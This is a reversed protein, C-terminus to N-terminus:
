DFLFGQTKINLDNGSKGKVEPQIGASYVEIDKKMRGKSKTEIEELIEFARKIVNDPMGALKAVHIGYSKSASGEVVKHLFVIDGKWEKVSVQYNKINKYKSLETLEHYHTAFLTKGCGNRGNSIYELISWAISMGDYTSTGRGIEDMIILSRTTSNNLINAGENMEVLFTSEGKALNDTAGIRTFIKDIIGIKGYDAPIFSGIQAMIVILAAQRLYTSKGSMNPGTIILIKNEDNDVLLDNPVFQGENMTVEVVPHRGQQILIEKSEDVVPCSYNKKISSDAFGSLVDLQAVRNANVILKSLYAKLNTQLKLFLEKELEVIRENANLVKSEYDQLDKFTYRESNVLSQKKIYYDPVYKINTKSVEVYYGIVKNYKIKLNNIGTQNREKEVLQEIYSKNTDSLSKLEDLEDSYGEKIVGGNSLDNAPEDKIAKEILIVVENLENIEETIHSTSRINKLATKINQIAILSNKLTIFEGPSIKNLSLRGSIREIDAIGDFEKRLKMLLSFDNKLDKVIVQRKNILSTDLLPMLIWQALLRSGMSTVCNNIISFLTNKRTGDWLNHFLELSRITTEPLWLYDSVRHRKVSVIHHIDRLQTEKVYKLLAGSAGIGYRCDDIGFGKLNTVKFLSTLARYSFDYDFYIDQFYNIFLKEKYQKVTKNFQEDHKFDERVVIENPNYRTLEDSLLTFIDKATEEVIFFDGTSIDLGAIALVNKEINISLLYNNSENEILTSDTITGPTIVEVVGRKVIGKAKSADELQDCIAVKKGARILKSLYKDKAHYPVGCMLVNNRKTLAIELIKSAVVADEGFMEYFDGLRFFLISEPYRKKIDRYQKMAPTNFNDTKQKENSGKKEM